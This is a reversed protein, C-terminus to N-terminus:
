VKRPLRRIADYVRMCNNKDSFLFYEEIRQRYLEKLECNNKMYEILENVLTDESRCIEGFGMTEYDFYSENINFHYDRSYQYYVVPKELYAFDFAVSSYDTVLLSGHNFVDHYKEHNYDIRVKENRDFLSIYDYVNPHPKFVIEYGYKEAAEILKENNILSNFKKFYQSNLIVENSKFKLYRRWTPMILIQRRDEKKELKDFRPFGLLKVVEKKYNYPYKFISKYEDKSSTLFMALHKDYENLWSSVNDKTIGHQLFVTSSRLLGAFYPYNGWFPYIINNDPHSTVIKEAYLAIFRHEISKYPIVKGIKKVEDWNKSNRKLVFYKDIDQDKDQAYKFLQIANDDAIDPLDMFLWIRKNRFYPYALLYLTRIPVGTKYGKKHNKLMSYITKIEQKIWERTNRKKVIIKNNKLTSIFNKTKAYGAVNSFNCPRSFEIFLDMEGEASKFQLEYTNDINLAIEAEFSYNTSYKHSLSYKDRQPFNVEHVDIKEGNVYTEVANNFMTPLNALIHLRNNIIEYVDIYITNLKLKHIIDKTLKGYEPTKKLNKYKFLIIYAKLLNTINKQNVIVEDDIYQVIHYLEEHLKEIEPRTLINNVSSIDFLWQLDYMITYQIFSPVENYKRISEIILFNFYNNLRSTFYEKRLISNDILSSKEERKRYYYKGRNFLGIRPNELLLQNIFVVDESTTLDRNFKLDGIVDRRFFCSSASLQIHDPNEFLDVVKEKEYKFNLPHPGTKEGFFYIPISVLDVNDNHINFFNSVGSLTYKTIYDDSDLFNVYKGSAQKLGLNRAAAAGMNEENNIYIINEPYRAKYEQCIKGTNDTSGDNVLIIQINDEFDLTQNIISNVSKSIWLDSNYAAIIISFKFRKM